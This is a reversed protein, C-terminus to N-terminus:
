TFKNTRNNNSYSKLRIDDIKTKVKVDNPLLSKFMLKFNSIEYVGPPLKYGLTSGTKYKVDLIDIIEDFNLQLNYVLDEFNRYKVRKLESLIESKFPIFDALKYGSKEIEIRTGRKKGVKVHLEFENESRLEIVKNLKNFFEEGDESNWHTSLSISFSNYENTINFVSKM